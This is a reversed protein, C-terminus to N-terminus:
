LNFQKRISGRSKETNVMRSFALKGSQFGYNLPTKALQTFRTFVMTVVAGGGDSGEM